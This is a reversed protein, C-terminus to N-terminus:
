PRRHGRRWRGIGRHTINAAAAVVFPVLLGVAALGAGAVVGLVQAHPVLEVLGRVHEDCIKM